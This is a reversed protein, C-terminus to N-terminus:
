GNGGSEGSAACCSPPLPRTRWLPCCRWRGTRLHAGLAPMLPMDTPMPVAGVPDLGTGGRRSDGRAVGNQLEGGLGLGM